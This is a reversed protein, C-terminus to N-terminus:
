YGGYTENSFAIQCSLIYTSMWLYRLTVCHLLDMTGLMVNGGFLLIDLLKRVVSQPAILVCCHTKRRWLPVNVWQSYIHELHELGLEISRTTEGLIPM